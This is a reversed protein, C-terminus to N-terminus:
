SERSVIDLIALESSMDAPWVAHEAFGTWGVEIGTDRVLIQASSSGPFAQAGSVDIRPM